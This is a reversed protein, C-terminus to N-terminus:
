SSENELPDVMRSPANKQTVNPSGPVSSSATAVASSNPASSSSATIAAARPNMYPLPSTPFHPILSRMVGLYYEHHHLSSPSPLLLFPLQSSTDHCSYSKAAATATCNAFLLTGMRPDLLALTSHFSVCKNLSTLFGFSFSFCLSPFDRAPFSHSFSLSIPVFLLLSHLSLSHLSAFLFVPATRFSVGTFLPFRLSLIPLDRRPCRPCSFTIAYGM